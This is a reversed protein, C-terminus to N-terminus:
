DSATCSFCLVSAGKLNGIDVNPRGSIETPGVLVVPATLLHLRLEAVVDLGGVYLVHLLAGVRGPHDPLVGLFPVIHDEGGGEAIHVMHVLDGLLERVDEELVARAELGQSM